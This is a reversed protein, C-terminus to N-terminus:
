PQRPLGGDEFTGAQLMVTTTLPLKSKMQSFVQGSKPMVFVILVLITVISVGLMVSPYMMANMVKKRM